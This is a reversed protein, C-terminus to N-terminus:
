SVPAVTTDTRTGGSDDRTWDALGVELLVRGKDVTCAPTGLGPRDPCLDRLQDAHAITASACFLLPLAAWKSIIHAIQRM